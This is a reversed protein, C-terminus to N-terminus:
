AFNRMHSSLTFHTTTSVVDFDGLKAKTKDDELYMAVEVCFVICNLDILNKAEAAVFFDM